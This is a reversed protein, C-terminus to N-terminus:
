RPRPDISQVRAATITENPGVIRNVPHGELLQSCADKLATTPEGLFLLGQLFAGGFPWRQRPESPPMATDNSTRRCRAFTVRGCHHYSDARDAVRSSCFNGGVVLVWGQRSGLRPKAVRM